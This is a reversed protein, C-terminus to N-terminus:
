IRIYTKLTLLTRSFLELTLMGVLMTSGMIIIGSSSEPTIPIHFSEMIPDIFSTNDGILKQEVKSIICGGTIIHHIWILVFWVYLVCLLLYSPIVTHSIIYLILFCYTLFHHLFRIMKGIRASDDEWFFLKRFFTELINVLYEQIMIRSNSM